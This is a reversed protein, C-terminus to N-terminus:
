RSQRTSDLPLPAIAVKAPKVTGNAADSLVTHVFDYQAETQVLGMRQNRLMKTFDPMDVHHGRQLTAIGLETLIFVGTRGIGASCHLLLPATTSNTHSKLEQVKDFFRLFDTPQDPVGHDPWAEFQCHHVLRTAQGTRTVHFSRIIYGEGAEVSVIQVTIDGYMELEDPWYKYCKPRREFLKTLMCIVSVQNEWVMTWFHNATEQLPGQCAIWRLGLGEEVEADM